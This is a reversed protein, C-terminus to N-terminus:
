AAVGELFELYRPNVEYAPGKSRGPGNHDLQTNPFIFKRDELIRLGPLIQAKVPYRGQVARQCDRESFNEPRDRKIWKLIHKATEIAPDCSMLGFAAKAHFAFLASMELASEVDPVDVTEPIAASGAHKMLHFIGALRAAAGPLKGAWDKMSDFQGGDRLQREVSEYFERWNDYADDSLKLVHPIKESRADTNWPYNLLARLKDHYTESVIQSVPPTEISRYGLRSQPLYYIFRALLGLGRFEHNAALGRIVAPQPTLCMTIAPNRLSVSVTSKRDVRVSDGSHGKLYLDLNPVGKSYRGGLIKFIGGEASLVAIREDNDAMLDATKEPTIDDALLRPITPISPMNEEIERIEANIKLRAAHYKENAAKKRLRETTMEYTKVESMAKKRAQAMVRGQEHEWYELPRSCEALTASKREGSELTCLQYLNLPEQYGPKIEIRFKRAVATSAVGLVGCIALENPVQIATALEGAFNGAWSPLLDAKIPPVNVDEFPIFDTVNQM